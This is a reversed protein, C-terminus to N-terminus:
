AFFTWVIFIVSILMSLTTGGTGIGRLAEVPNDHKIGFPHLVRSILLSAGIAHMWIPSAENMEVIGMLILALPVVETFNGHRRVREALAMDDGHLISIGTKARYISVSAALWIAWLALASAYLGTFQLTM